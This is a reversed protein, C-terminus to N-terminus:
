RAGIAPVPRRDIPHRIEVDFGAIRRDVFHDRADLAAHQHFGVARPRDVIRAVLELEPALAAEPDLVAPEALDDLIGVVAADARAEPAAERADAVGVRHLHEACRMAALALRRLRDADAMRRRRAHERIHRYESSLLLPEAHAHRRVTSWPTTSGRDPRTARRGSRSPPSTCPM